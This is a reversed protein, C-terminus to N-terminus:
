DDLRLLRGRAGPRFERNVEVSSEVILPVIRKWRAVKEERDARAELLDLASRVVQVKSPAGLRQKLREIRRHDEDRLMLPKGVPPTRDSIYKTTYLRM